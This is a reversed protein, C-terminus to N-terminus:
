RGGQEREWVTGFMLLRAWTISVESQNGPRFLVSSQNTWVLLRPGAEGTRSMVVGSLRRDSVWCVLSVSTVLRTIDVCSSVQFKM